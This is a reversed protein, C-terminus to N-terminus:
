GTVPYWTEFDRAVAHLEDRMARAFMAKVEANHLREDNALGRELHEADLRYAEARGRLWMAPTM